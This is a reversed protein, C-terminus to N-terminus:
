LDIDPFDDDNDLDEKEEKEERTDENEKEVEEYDDSSVEPISKESIEPSDGGEIAKDQDVDEPMIVFGGRAEVLSIFEDINEDEGQESIRELSEEDKAYHKELMTKAQELTFKNSSFYNIVAEVLSDIVEHTESVLGHDDEDSIFPTAVTICRGEDFLDLEGKLKFLGGSKHEIDVIHTNDWIRFCEKFRQADSEDVESSSVLASNDSRLFGSWESRWYGTLALFNYRLSLLESRVDAGVAIKREKDQFEQIAINSGERQVHELAKVKVGGYGRDKFTIKKIFM